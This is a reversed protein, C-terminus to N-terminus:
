RRLQGLNWAVVSGEVAISAVLLWTALKPHEAALRSLTVVQVASWASQAAVSGGCTSPMLPHAERGGQHLVTCTTAADAARLSVLVSLPLKLSPADAAHVPAAVLLLLAVVVTM